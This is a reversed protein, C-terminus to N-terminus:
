RGEDRSRRGDTVSFRAQLGLTSRVGVPRVRTVEGRPQISFGPRRLLAVGEVAAVLALHRGLSVTLMPGLGAGLWGDRQRDRSALARGEGQGVYGGALVSVCPLLAVRKAAGIPFRGCGRAEVAWWRVRVQAQLGSITAVRPVGFSAGMEVVGHGFTFGMAGGASLDVDPAIGLGAHGRAGVFAEVPVAAGEQRPAPPRASPADTAQASTPQTAAAFRVAPPDPLATLERSGSSSSFAAEEAISAALLTTVDLLTECSPSTLERETGINGAHIQVRALYGIATTTVHADIEPPDVGPALRERLRDVADSAPPCEAPATWWSAAPVDM